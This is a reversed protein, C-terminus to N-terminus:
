TDEGAHPYPRVRKERAANYSTRVVNDRPIPPRSARVLLAVAGVFLLGVILALVTVVFQPTGTPQLPLMVISLLVILVGIRFAARFLEPAM